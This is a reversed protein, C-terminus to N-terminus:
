EDRALVLGKALVSWLLLDLATFHRGDPAHKCNHKGGTLAHADLFKLKVKSWKMEKIPEDESEGRQSGGDAYTGSVYPENNGIKDAIALVVRREIEALRATGSATLGTSVCNISKLQEQNTVDVNLVTQVYSDCQSRKYTEGIYILKPNNENEVGAAAIVTENFWANAIDLYKGDYNSECVTNTGKYVVTGGENGELYNLLDIVGAEVTAEYNRLQAGIYEEFPREPWLHLMHLARSNAVILTPTVKPIGILRNKHLSMQKDLGAIISHRSTTKADGWDSFGRSIYNNEFLYPLEFAGTKKEDADHRGSYACHTGRKDYNSKELWEKGYPCNEKLALLVLESTLHERQGINETTESLFIYYLTTCDTLLIFPHIFSFMLSFILLLLIFLARIIYV